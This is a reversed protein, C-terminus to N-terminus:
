EVGAPQKADAGPLADSRVVFALVIVAAFATATLWSMVSMFYHAPYIPLALYATQDGYDAARGGLVWLRWGLASFIAAGLIGSLAMQLRRILPGTFTDLLDIVIHQQRAAIQPYLLFTMGVLALETLETAGPVPSSMVNRGIVDAFTLICTALLLVCAVANALTQLRQLIM